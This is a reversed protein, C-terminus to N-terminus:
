KWMSLIIRAMIAEPTSSRIYRPYSVIYKRLLPSNWAFPMEEQTQIATANTLM